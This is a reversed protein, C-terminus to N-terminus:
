TNSLGFPMVLWEFLSYRTHFATKWKNSDTICVLHYANQLDTKTYIQVKKPVDLLDTVLLIPYYDKYM